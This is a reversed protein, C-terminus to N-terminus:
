NLIIPNTHAISMGEFKEVLEIITVAIDLHTSNKQLIKGGFRELNQRNPMIIHLIAAQNLGLFGQLSTEFRKEKDRIWVAEGEENETWEDPFLNAM